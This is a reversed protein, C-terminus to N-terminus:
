RAKRQRRAMLAALEESDLVDGADVATRSEALQRMTEASSLVELTEELAALDDASILVAVPHGHRSIEVREHTRTVEDILESLRNRADTFPVVTMSSTYASMPAFNTCNAALTSQGRRNSAGAPLQNGPAPPPQRGPPVSSPGFQLAPRPQVCRRNLGEHPHEPRTTEIIVRRYLDVPPSAPEIGVAGVRVLGSQTFRHGHKLACWAPSRPGRLQARANSRCAVAVPRNMCSVCTRIPSRGCLVARTAPSGALAGARGVGCRSRRRSVLGTRHGQSRRTRGRGRGFIRTRRGCCWTRGARSPTGGFCLM